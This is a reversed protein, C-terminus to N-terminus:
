TEKQTKNQKQELHIENDKQAVIHERALSEGCATCVIIVVVKGEAPVVAVDACYFRHESDCERSIAM